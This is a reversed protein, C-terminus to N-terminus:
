TYDNDIEELLNNWEENTTINSFAGLNDLIEAIEFWDVHPRNLYYNSTTPCGIASDDIYYHAYAKPSTSWTQSPNENIGYLPINEKEFWKLADGLDGNLDSRMTFLILKHGCEVLKRLVPAAGINKGIKPYEHTVCTGDFDIAIIM